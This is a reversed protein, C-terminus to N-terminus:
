MALTRQLQTVDRIDRVGDRNLDSLYQVTEGGCNIYGEAEVGDTAPYDRYEALCRQTETADGIDLRGNGNVDGIKDGLDLRELDELLESYIGTDKARTIDMFCQSKTLYIGYTLDFPVHYSNDRFVRDGLVEYCLTRQRMDTDGQVLVWRLMGNTDYHYALERYSAVDRFPTGEWSAFRNFEERFLPEGGIRKGVGFRDFVEQLDPYRAEDGIECLDFFREQAVDYVGYTYDFPYAEDCQWFYRGFFVNEMIVDCHAGIDSRILVWDAVGATEHAYLEEYVNPEVSGDTVPEKGDFYQEIFKGYYQGNPEAASVPIMLACVLLSVVLVCALAKKM